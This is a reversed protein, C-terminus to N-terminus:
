QDEIAKDKALVNTVMAFLRGQGALTKGLAHAADKRVPEEPSVLQDLIETCTLQKGRFSFRLSAMTENFLRNWARESTLRKEHLLSELQKDLQYPKFVRIDRLWPRYAALVENEQLMASLAEDPITNLELEFFLLDKTIDNVQESIRQYFGSHSEDEVNEAYILYAYSMLKGGLDELTEYEGIAQALATANLTSVQNEYHERFDKARKALRKRDAEIEPSQMTAYFDSLDWAPAPTSPM